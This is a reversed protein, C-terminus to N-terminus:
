DAPCPQSARYHDLIARGLLEVVPPCVANGLGVLRDVLHPLGDDVRCVFPTAQGARDGEPSWDLRLGPWQAPEGADGGAGLHDPSPPVLRLEFRGDTVTPTPLLGSGIGATPPVLPALRFATGRRTTGSRPWIGSFVILAGAASRPWTRWSRTPRDFKAFSGSTNPGSDPATAMSGPGGQRGLFHGPLPLRRLHRQTPHWSQDAEQPYPHPRRRLHPGDALAQPPRSM